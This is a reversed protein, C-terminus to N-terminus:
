ASGLADDADVGAVVLLPFLELVRLSPEVLDEPEVVGVEGFPDGTGLPSEGEELLDLSIRTSFRPNM